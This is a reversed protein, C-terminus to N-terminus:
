SGALVRSNDGRRKTVGSRDLCELIEIALGRGTGIADRFQAATFLGGPQAVATDRARGALMSMTEPLAFREPTLKVLEDASAKRHVLDRVQQLPLKAMAALERVSPIAAASDALIPRIRQWALVDRPSEAAARGVLAARSGRVEIHGREALWRMLQAFDGEAWGSGVGDRVRAIEHCTAAPDADHWARLQSVIREHLADLHSVHFALRAEGPLLRCGPPLLGDARGASWKFVHEFWDISVGRPSRVLLEQLADAARDRSLAALVEDRRERMRGSAPFPDLVTGGGITRSAAQDRVVFRDGHAANVARELRLQAHVTHGPTVAVGRRIAVRAPIDAAGIHVHVPTWHKLPASETPLVTLRVDIRRTPRHAGPAVLWDGRAVEERKITVNIACRDGAEARDVTRGHRQLGRARAPTGAPSAVLPDGEAITGAIVTGTVVTGRGHLTFARDVVFRAPNGSPRDGERSRSAAAHLRAVLTDMGQGTVASTALVAAERLPGQALLERVEHGVAEARAAAVRDCKTVVVTGERVGLLEVISLHERTQPMVGDDAAVVLLVHDVAYVGSLMNRVFREHGPVDVFALTGGAPLACHAFGLDITIGRSKEQPLRDTDIGTLARVLTTKGHDIHGATAVIM